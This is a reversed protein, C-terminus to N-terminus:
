WAMRRLIEQQLTDIKRQVNRLEADPADSEILIGKECCAAEHQEILLTASMPQVDLM